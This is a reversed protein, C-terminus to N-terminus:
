TLVDKKSNQLAANFAKKLDERKVGAKDFVSIISSFVAEANKCDIEHAPKMQEDKYEFMIGDVTEYFPCSATNFKSERDDTNEGIRLFDYDDTNKMAVKFFAVAPSNEDWIVNEFMFDVYTEDIQVIQELFYNVDRFFYDMNNASDTNLLAQTKLALHSQTNGTKLEDFAVRMLDYNERSMRIAVDSLNVPWYLPLEQKFSVANEFMHGMNVINSVDWGEIPQNFAAANYFMYGMDRVNSVDWDGIPQNFSRVGAFMSQMYGVNSVDWDGIPQNFAETGAFMGSMDTVSSVDWDGIPQNFAKAYSFMFSMNEVNSVDWGSIDQNFSKACWFMSQMDEVASVDWNEIGSFDKRESDKFLGSMDTIKSTDIDGLYISEDDCLKKLEEKYKPHYMKAM